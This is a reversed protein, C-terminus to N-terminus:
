DRKRTDKKEKVSVEAVELGGLAIEKWDDREKEVIAIREKLLMVITDYVWKFVWWGKAGSFAMFLLMFLPLGFEVIFEGIKTFDIM